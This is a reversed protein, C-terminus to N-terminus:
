GVRTSAFIAQKFRGRAPATALAFVPVPRRNLFSTSIYDGLMRGATTDAIWRLPMSESNLRQPESWTTGGDSSTVLHVDIGCGNRCPRVLSHYTLALRAGSGATTPDVALGPVFHDVVTGAEGPPTVRAPPSWSVGDVSSSIVIDHGTCAVRFRCDNWAAFIRGAADVEVSPFPPARVDGIEAEFLDSIRVAPAFTAGGDRSRIAAVYYIASQSVFPFVVYVVVLTGDPQVVPQAGNVLERRGPWAPAVPDSWTRGGDMSSRTAIQSGPVDLYSIYCRGRFPSAVGNDCVIWNKDYSEGSGSGAVVPPSWTIGDRSRSVLLQNVHTTIGLSSILWVRHRVDYAVTPDSAREVRGIPTSFITLRPLLGSTWSRGGDRSTAFGITAAGGDTFRGVQFATVITSGFAFSDPEVQTEHQSAADRYPDRSLQRSVVECDRAVADVLDSNVVDRGGGCSVSDAADDFDTTLYDNGARGALADRGADGRLFDAGARGDLRDDGARGYLIDDGRTGVLRDARATGNFTEGYAGSGGVLLGIALASALLRRV